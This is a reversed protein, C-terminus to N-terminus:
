CGQANSDSKSEVVNSRAFTGLTIYNVRERRYGQVIEMRNTMDFFSNLAYLRRRNQGSHKAHKYKEQALAFKLTFVFEKIQSTILATTASIVLSFTQPSGWSNEPRSILDCSEFFQLNEGDEKLPTFKFSLVYLSIIPSRTPRIPAPCSSPLCAFQHSFNILQALLLLSHFWHLFRLPFYVHM